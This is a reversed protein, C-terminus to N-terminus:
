AIDSFSAVLSRSRSSTRRRSGIPASPDIASVARAQAVRAATGHDVAGIRHLPAGTAAPAHRDAFISRVFQPPTVPAGPLPSGTARANARRTSTRRCTSEGLRRICWRHATAELDAFLAAFPHM